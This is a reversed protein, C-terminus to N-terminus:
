FVRTGWLKVWEAVRNIESLEEPRREGNFIEHGLLQPPQKDSAQVSAEKKEGEEEEGRSSIARLNRLINEEQTDRNM